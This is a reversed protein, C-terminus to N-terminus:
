SIERARERLRTAAQGDGIRAYAAASERWRERAEPLDGHVAATEGLKEWLLADLWGDGSQRAHDQSLRYFAEARGPDGLDDHLEGLSCLTFRLQPAGLRQQIARAQNLCEGAERYRHRRRYAEGINNLVNALDAPPSVREALHLARRFHELADHDRGMEDYANGLNDLLVVEGARDGLDERLRLARRYCDVAAEQRSRQWYALGLNNLIWAEGEASGARAAATVAIQHTHVWDDWHKGLYLFSWFAATLRWAVDPEPGAALAIAAVVTAHEAHLWALAADASGFAPGAPLDEVPV